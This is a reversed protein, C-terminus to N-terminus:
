SEDLIDEVQRAVLFGEIISKHMFLQLYQDIRAKLNSAFISLAYNEFLLLQNLLNIFADHYSDM